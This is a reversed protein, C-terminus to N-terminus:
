EVIPQLGKYGASPFEEEAVFKRPRAVPCVLALRTTTAGIDGALLMMRGEDAAAPAKGIANV